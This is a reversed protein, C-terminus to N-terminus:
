RLAPPRYLECKRGREAQSASWGACLRVPPTGGGFLASAQVQFSTRGPGCHKGFTQWEVGDAPGSRAVQLVACRFRFLSRGVLTGAIRFSPVPQEPPGAVREYTGNAVVSGTTLRFKTTEAAAAAPAAAVGLGVGVAVLGALTRCILSRV